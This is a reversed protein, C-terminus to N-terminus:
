KIFSIAFVAVAIILGYMFISYCYRLYKYKKALVIGLFYLDRTMTSYLFDSDKIMETMGWDFDSLKMNYFNGFFLLNSKKDLIDQRTVKGETIKPRTSLTAFIISGLCVILLVVTPLILKPNSDFSPVLTSITISIIIANISLMINAKNDAISSLNVHTRYATRYMTEVGRGLKLQSIESTNQFAIHTVDKKGKTKTKTKSKKKKKEQAAIEDMSLVQKEPHLRDKLKNLQRIHKKKRNDFLEQAKQTHYNQQTIFDLEFDIWDPESMMHNKTLTLEQRIRGCREWYIKKGLHSMDSDCIIQQLLNKPSQPMKTALICEQIAKIDSEDFNHKSLFEKAYHASRQEHDIPGKDYGTDHFWAALLLIELEKSHLNHAKGLEQAAAVVDLTHQINHYAFNEHVQEAIFNTVYAEVEMLLANVVEMNQPNNFSDTFYSNKKLKTPCNPPKIPEIIKMM